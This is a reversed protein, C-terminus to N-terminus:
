IKKLFEKFDPQNNERYISIIKKWDDIKQMQEREVSHNKIENITIGTIICIKSIKNEPIGIEGLWMKRISGHKGSGKYGFKTAIGNLSYYSNTYLKCFMWNRFNTELYIGM